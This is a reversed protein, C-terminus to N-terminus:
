KDPTGVIRWDMQLLYEGGDQAPAEFRMTKSGFRSGDLHITYFERDIFDDGAAEKLRDIAYTTAKTVWEVWKTPDGPLSPLDSWKIPAPCELVPDRALKDYHTGNDRECMVVGLLVKGTNPLLDVELSDAGGRLQPPYTQGALVGPNWRTLVGRAEVSKPQVFEKVKEVLIPVAVFYIQDSVHSPPTVSVCKNNPFTISLREM